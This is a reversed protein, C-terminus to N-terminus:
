ARRILPPTRIERFSPADPIEVPRVHRPGFLGDAPSQAELAVDGHIEHTGSCRVIHFVVTFFQDFRGSLVASKPRKLPSAKGLGVALAINNRTM